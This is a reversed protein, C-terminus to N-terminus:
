STVFWWTYIEDGTCVEERGEEEKRQEQRKKKRSKREEDEGDFEMVRSLPFCCCCSLSSKEKM